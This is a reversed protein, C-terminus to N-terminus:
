KPRVAEWAALVRVLEDANEFSRREATGLREIVGACPPPEGSPARRVRLVYYVYGAPGAAGGSEPDAM